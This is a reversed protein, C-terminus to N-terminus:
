VVLVMPFARGKDPMAVYAPIQGDKTPIRVEGAHLGRTDTVIMTQACVPQVALAFGAALSGAVFDRRTVTERNTVLALLDERIMDNM